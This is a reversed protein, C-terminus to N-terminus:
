SDVWSKDRKWIEKPQGQNDKIDKLHKFGYRSIFPISPKQKALDRLVYLDDNVLCVLNAWTQDIDKLINKSFKLVDCHVWLVGAHAELFVKYDERNIVPIRTM